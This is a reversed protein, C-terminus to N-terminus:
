NLCLLNSCSPCTDLGLFGCTGYPWQHVVELKAPASGVGFESAYSTGQLCHVSPSQDGKCPPVPAIGALEVLTPDAHSLTVCGCLRTLRYVVGTFHHNMFLLTRM